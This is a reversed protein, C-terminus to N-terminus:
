SIPPVPALLQSSALSGGSSARCCSLVTDFLGRDSFRTTPQLTLYAPQHRLAPVSQRCSNTVHTRHNPRERFRLLWGVGGWSRQNDDGHNTRTVAGSILGNKM